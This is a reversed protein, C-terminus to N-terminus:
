RDKEFIRVALVMALVGGGILAAISIGIRIWLQAVSMHQGSFLFGYLGVALLILAALATFFVITSSALRLNLQDRVTRYGKRVVLVVGFSLIIFLLGAQAAVTSSDAPMGLYAVPVTFGLAIVAGLLAGPGAVSSVSLPESKVLHPGLESAPKATPYLSSVRKAREDKEEPTLMAKHYCSDGSAGWLM